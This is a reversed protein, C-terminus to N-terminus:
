PEFVKLLFQEVEFYGRFVEDRVFTWGLDLGLGFRLLVPQRSYALPRLARLLKSILLGPPLSSIVM